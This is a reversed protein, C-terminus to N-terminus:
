FKLMIYKKTLFLSVREYFLGVEIKTVMVLITWSCHNEYCLSLTPPYDINVRCPLVSYLYTLSSRLHLGITKNFNLKSIINQM